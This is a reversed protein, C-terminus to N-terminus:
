NRMVPLKNATEWNYCGLGTQRIDGSTQSCHNQFIYNLMKLQFLKGHPPLPQTAMCISKSDTFCTDWITVITFKRIHQWWKWVSHTTCYLFNDTFSEGWLEEKWLPRGIAWLKKCHMNFCIYKLHGLPSNFGTSKTPAPSTAPSHHPFSILPGSNSVLSRIWFM